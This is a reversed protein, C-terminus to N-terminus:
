GVGGQKRSEERMRREREAEEPTLVEAAFDEADFVERVTVPAPCRKAWELMEERSRVQLLWFGAILEKTETFPGDVVARGGGTTIETRFGKSSPHLGEAALLVGAKVLEENYDSMAKIVEQSPMVNAESDANAMVAMLFRM